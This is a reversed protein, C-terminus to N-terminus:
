HVQAHLYFFLDRQRLLTLENSFLTTHIIFDGETYMKALCTRNELWYQVCYMQIVQKLALNNRSM